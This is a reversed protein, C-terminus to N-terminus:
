LQIFECFFLKTKQIRSCQHLHFYLCSTVRFPVTNPPPTPLSPGFTPFPHDQPELLNCHISPNSSHSDQSTYYVFFRWESQISQSKKIVPSMLSTWLRRVLPSVISLTRTRWEVKPEWSDYSSLLTVDFVQKYSFFFDLERKYLQRFPSTLPKLRSFM